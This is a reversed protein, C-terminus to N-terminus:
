YLPLFRSLSAALLALLDTLPGHLPTGYGLQVAFLSPLVHYLLWSCLVRACAQVIVNILSRRGSPKRSVEGARRPALGLNAM